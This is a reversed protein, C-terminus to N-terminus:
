KYGRELIEFRSSLEKGTAADFFGTEYERRCARNSERADFAPSSGCLKKIIIWLPFGAAYQAVVLDGRDDALFVGARSAFRIEPLEESMVVAPVALTGVLGGVVPIGIDTTGAIRANVEVVQEKTPVIVPELYEITELYAAYQEDASRLDAEDESFARVPGILFVLPETASIEEIDLGAAEYNKLAQLSMEREAEEVNLTTPILIRPVGSGGTACGTLLGVVTATTIFKWRLSILGYILSVKTM